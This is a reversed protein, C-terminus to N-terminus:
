VPPLDSIRKLDRSFHRQASAAIPPAEVDYLSSNLSLPRMAARPLSRPLVEAMDEEDPGMWSSCSELRKQRWELEDQTLYFDSQSRTMNSNPRGSCLVRVSGYVSPANAVFASVMMQVSAWLSRTMQSSNSDRVSIIRVISVIISFTGITFLTYLKVHERISRKQLGIIPWTIIILLCDLVINCTTQTLLEGYAFVCTSPNSLVQWYMTIPRCELFTTLNVAIYTAAFVAWTFRIVYTVWPICYTIRTYFFLLIATQLWLFSTIMSRSVLVLISGVRINELSTGELYGPTNLADAANGLRLYFADLSIRGVSFVISAVVLFFSIDLAERRWLSLTIRSTLFGLTLATAVYDVLSAPTSNIM